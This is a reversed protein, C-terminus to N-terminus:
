GSCSVAKGDCRATSLAIARSFTIRPGFWSCLANRTRYRAVVTSPIAIADFYQARTAKRRSIRLVASTLSRRGRGNENLGAKRQDILPAAAGQPHHRFGSAYLPEPAICRVTLLPITHLAGARHGKFDGIVQELSLILHSAWHPDFKADLPGINVPVLHRSSRM